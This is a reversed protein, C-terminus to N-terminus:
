LPIAPSAPRGPIGPPLPSATLLWHFSTIKILKAQKNALTQQNMKNKNDILSPKEANVVKM